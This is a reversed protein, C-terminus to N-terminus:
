AITLQNLDDRLGILYDLDGTEILVTGYVHCDNPIPTPKIHYHVRQISCGRYLYFM